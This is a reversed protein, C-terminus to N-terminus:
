SMLKGMIRASADLTARARDVFGPEFRRLLGFASLSLVMTGRANRIPVSVAGIDPENSGLNTAYGAARIRALDADLSDRDPASPMTGAIAATDLYSQRVTDEMDALWLKGQASTLFPLVTGVTINVSIARSSSAVAVCTPGNRALKCVMVSEHLAASVAELEGHLLLGIAGTDESVQGLEDVKPGLAYYGRKTARLAGAAELTMLFRHATATNVGLQRTVIATSIEPQSKQVLSLIEFAKLVSSNLPTAV